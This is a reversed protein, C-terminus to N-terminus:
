AAGRRTAGCNHRCLKDIESLMALRLSQYADRWIKLQSPNEAYFWILSTMAEDLRIRATRPIRRSPFTRRGQNIKRRTTRHETNM